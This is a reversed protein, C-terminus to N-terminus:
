YRSPFSVSMRTVFGHFTLSAAWADSRRHRITVAHRRLGCGPHPLRDGRVPVVRQDGHRSVAGGSEGPVPPRRRLCLQGEGRIHGHSLPSDEDGVM